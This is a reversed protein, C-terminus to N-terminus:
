ANDGGIVRVKTFFFYVAWSAIRRIIKHLLYDADMPFTSHHGRTAVVTALIFLVVGALGVNVFVPVAGTSTGPRDFKGIQTVM